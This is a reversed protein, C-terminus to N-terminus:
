NAAALRKPACRTTLLIRRKAGDRGAIEVASGSKLKGALPCVNLHTSGEWYTFRYLDGKGEGILISQHGGLYAKFSRSEATSTPRNLEYYFWINDDYPNDFLINDTENESLIMIIFFIVVIIASLTSFIRWIWKLPGLIIVGARSSGGIGAQETM